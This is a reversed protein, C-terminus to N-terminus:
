REERAAALGLGSLIPPMAVDKGKVTHWVIDTLLLDPIADADAFNLKNSVNAKYATKKNIEAVVDRTPLIASYPAVNLPKETFFAFPSAVADYQCLPPIGLLLGMTRLMSDTNYFTSDVTGKAIYPSIVYATSRHADVHDNGNQADDEIIFIATKKWYPSRSVTEVLQGVAFDNDANFARPSPKDTSSGMTHNNGLRVMMFRPMKGTKVFRDYEGKWEQIRSTAKNAGFTKRHGSFTHNHLTWADSDAYNLDYIRYNLDTRDVLSKRNPITGVTNQDMGEKGTAGPDKFEAFFGYNRISVGHRLCQDWIYGGPAEAADKLGERDAAVGNNQGEYDYVRGRGSYNYPVNRAVYENAMGQTSWNWGDGSVEACVYFNDMLVFREALAHLNPTVSRPFLCLSPDGNGQPLDGLVQDYTRNEKIIYIVHQIGTAPIAARADADLTASLRNNLVVQRSLKLLEADSPLAMTSVCGEIINQIYKGWTGVDRGNPNREEVGKANAILLRKGDAAVAVSTPYWGTPIYGLLRADPLGIVAVANMDALAVYLRKEDPSLAMGLPTAGPLGRVDQPRLLVTKLVKDSATDVISITDSGSNSVFLRAQSRDLLLSTPSTGTRVARVLKAAQPDVVAVVDDRESTVYVKKDASPGATVAAVGLPFGPLEVHSAVTGDAANWITLSGKLNSARSTGNNAAYVRSGDRSTAVGAKFGPWKADKPPDALEKGAEVIKGDEAITYVVVRDEAGRSAYLTRGNTGPAFALGWYLGQSKGDKNKGGVDIKSLMRGDRGDLVSLAQRFGTNTVVVFKGDPTMLMNAPWSGVPAHEGLPTIYKGTVLQRMEGQPRACVPMVLPLLLSLLLAKARM